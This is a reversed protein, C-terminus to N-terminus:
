KRKHVEERIVHLLELFAQSLSEIKKEFRLLLYGALVIPFGLNSVLTSLLTLLSTDEMDAFGRELAFVKM